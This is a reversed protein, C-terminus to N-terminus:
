ILYYLIGTLMVLWFILVLVQHQLTNFEMDHRLQVKTNVQGVLQGVTKELWRIDVIRWLLRAFYLSYNAIFYIFKDIVKIDINKWFWNALQNTPNVM